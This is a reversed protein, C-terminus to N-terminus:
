LLIMDIGNIDNLTIYDESGDGFLVRYEDNVKNYWTITGTHWDDYLARIKRKALVNDYDRDKPLDVPEEDQLLEESDCLQEDDCIDDDGNTSEDAPETVPEPASSGITNESGDFALCPPVVYVPWGEPNIKDDNLSDATILCGTREFYRYRSDKYKDGQLIEWADGVWYTILIRRQKIDLKKEPINGLWLDIDEDLELWEDQIKKVTTKLM